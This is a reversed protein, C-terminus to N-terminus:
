SLGLVQFEDEYGEYEEEIEEPWQDPLRLLFHLVTAALTLTILHLLNRELRTELAVVGFIFPPFVGIYLTLLLPLNTRGPLRAKNFPVSDQRLFFIDSLAVALSAGTVIQVLLQRLSFGLAVLLLLVAALVAFACALAWRRGATACSRNSVGSIRFIWGAALSLPFAFASRLGAIVWFLLLPLVAHLGRQSLDYNPPEGIACALALALGTGSYVALYVQYRNNRALTQTIFHFVAREGPRRLFSHLISNFWGPSPRRVRSAGELALRRMRAWALPYTVLTFTATLGLAQWARRAMPGAFAPAHAGHLLHQYVGLFWVPPLCFPLNLDSAPSHSHQFGSITFLAISSAGPHYASLATHLTDGAKVYGVLLLGLSTVSAFQIASSVSRFLNGGLVCLLVSGLALFFFTAFLSAALVAVAHAYLQRPFDDHSIAPLLIAGFINSSVVFIGLFAALATLKGALLSFPRLPLPSLVLFDLRDPFLMEWEFLAVAGLALISFLIFLYQDEVAGWGSRPPYKGYESQLFLTVTLGPAATVAVARAVTTITDGDAHVTDNDFFRRFFHRTLIRLTSAPQGAPRLSRFPSRRDSPPLDRALQPLQIISNFEPM